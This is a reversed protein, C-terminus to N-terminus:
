GALHKGLFTVIDGMVQESSWKLGASSDGGMFSLDGHDAGKLVYRTSDVGKARLTNHLTLTQSPSVLRDASGHLLMFAPDSSDAYTSPDAAEIASPDDDLSKKTGAGFVFQASSTGAALYTKQTAADFDSATKSLDGPGFEDVVAQVDSSQDLNEGAEFEEVGNTTGAMAALYGGASQGWVAVNAPDIGYEDAHARLYRIASKVDQLTETYTAGSTVTRYEISAVAYGQEAVYTRQNLNGTKDAMAFGGGTMYVVLPKKGDTEPVQLDLKLEAKKGDATTPTSYVVDSHTAVEVTGCQIQVGTPDIVTSTSTDSAKVTKAFSLSAGGAAGSPAGSPAGSGAQGGAAGASAQSAPCETSKSASADAATSGSDSSCATLALGLVVSAALGMGARSPKRGGAAKKKEEKAM